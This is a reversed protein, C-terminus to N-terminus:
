YGALARQALSRISDSLYFMSKSRVELKKKQFYTYYPFIGDFRDIDILGRM